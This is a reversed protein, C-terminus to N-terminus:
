TVKAGRKGRAAAKPRLDLANHLKLLMADSIAHSRDLLEMVRDMLELAQAFEGVKLRARAERTLERARKAAQKLETNHVIAARNASTALRTKRPQTAKTM